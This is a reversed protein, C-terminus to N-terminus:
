SARGCTTALPSRLSFRRIIKRMQRQRLSQAGRRALVLRSRQERDMINGFYQVCRPLRDAAADAFARKSSAADATHPPYIWSVKLIEDPVAPTSSQGTKAVIYGVIPFDDCTCEADIYKFYKGSHTLNDM